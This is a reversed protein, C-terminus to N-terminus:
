GSLAGPPSGISQRALESTIGLHRLLMQSHTYAMSFARAAAGPDHYKQALARATERDSSAGTAFSLRAFGGPQLRVRQRLSVVPDLVAGTTGSLARGDLSVPRDHGRGRGLFRARSSEWETPLARRGDVSLTHFAWANAESAARPRRGCLLASSDPLYQTEIFLKGFAPHAVDDEQRGLVIEAYSTIEIERTHESKNTLSLRRVEVDEEASVVVELQSEIGDDTRRFVARENSFHGPVRRTGPSHAPVDGVLAQGLPRRAPLHFPQGPRHHSGGAVPHGLTGAVPQRRRRCQHDGNRLLRQLPVPCASLLYAAIPFAAPAVDARGPARRSEEAPRPPATAAERPVREQLLLETAKVRPSAM